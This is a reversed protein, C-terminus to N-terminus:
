QTQLPHTIQLRMTTFLKGIRKGIRNRGGHFVFAEVGVGEGVPELKPHFLVGPALRKPIKWFHRGRRIAEPKLFQIEAIAVEQEFHKFIVGIGPHVLTEFVRLFNVFIDGLLADAHGVGAFVAAAVPQHHRRFVFAGADQVVEIKAQFIETKLMAFAGDAVSEVPSGRCIM